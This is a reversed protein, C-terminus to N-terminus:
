LLLLLLLLLLILSRSRAPDQPATHDERARGKRSGKCGLVPNAVEVVAVFWQRMGLNSAPGKQIRSRGIGALIGLPVKAVPLVLFVVIIPGNKIGVLGGVIRRLLGKAGERRNSSSLAFDRGTTTIFTVTGVFCGVLFLNGSVQICSLNLFHCM